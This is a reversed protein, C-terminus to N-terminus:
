VSFGRRAYAKEPFGPRKGILKPNKGMRYPLLPCTRSPCERVLKISGGMCYLCHRRILKM